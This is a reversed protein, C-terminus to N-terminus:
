YGRQISGEHNSAFPHVVPGTSSHIFTTLNCARCLAGGGWYGVTDTTFGPLLVATLTLGERHISGLDRMVPLLHTSWQVLPDTYSHLSIAPEECYQIMKNKDSLNNSQEAMKLEALFTTSGNQTERQKAFQKFMEVINKKTQFNALQEVINRMAQCIM